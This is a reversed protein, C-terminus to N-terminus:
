IEEHLLSIDFADAPEGALYMIVLYKCTEYDFVYGKMHRGKFPFSILSPDKEVLWNRFSKKVEGKLSKYSIITNKM